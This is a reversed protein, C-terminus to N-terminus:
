LDEKAYELRVTVGLEYELAKHIVDHREKIREPLEIEVVIEKEGDLAEESKIYIEIEDEKIGYEKMQKYIIASIEEESSKLASDLFFDTTEDAVQNRIEEPSDLSLNFDSFDIGTPLLFCCLLFLGLVLSMIKEMSASPVLVSVVGCILVGSCITLVWGTVQDM